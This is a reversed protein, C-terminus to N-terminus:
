QQPLYAQLARLHTLLLTRIDITSSTAQQVQKEFTDLDEYLSVFASDQAMRGAEGYMSVSMANLQEMYYIYQRARGLQSATNSSTIGGIKNVEEVAASCASYMRQSLQDRTKDQTYAGRILTVTLFATAALLIICVILLVRRHLRLDAVSAQLHPRSNRYMM